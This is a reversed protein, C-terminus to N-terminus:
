IETHLPVQKPKRSSMKGGRCFAPSSTLECFSGFLSVGAFFLLFILTMANRDGVQRSNPFFEPSDESFMVNWCLELGGVCESLFQDVQLVLFWSVFLGINDISDLELPFALFHVNSFTLGEILSHGLM